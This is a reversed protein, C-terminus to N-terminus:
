HASHYLIETGLSYLDGVSVPFRVDECVTEVDDEHDFCSVSTACSTQPQLDSINRV